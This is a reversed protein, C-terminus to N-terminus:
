IAKEIREPEASPLEPQNPRKIIEELQSKAMQLQTEIDMIKKRQNRITLKDRVRGPLSALVSVLAGASLAILLILALSGNIHWFLFSVTTADTNQVAFVIALASIILAIFLFIQM